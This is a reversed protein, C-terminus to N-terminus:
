FQFYIFANSSGYAVLIGYLLVGTLVARRLPRSRACGTRTRGAVDLRAGRRDPLLFALATWMEWNLTAGELRAINRLFQMAGGFSASRFFVWAVLVVVQVVVRGRPACGGRGASSGAICASCGSSPSRAAM